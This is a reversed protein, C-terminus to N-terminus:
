EAAVREPKRHPLSRWRLQSPQTFQPPPPQRKVVRIGKGEDVTPFRKQQNRLTTFHFGGFDQNIERAERKRIHERPRHAELMM